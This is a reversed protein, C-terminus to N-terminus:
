GSRCFATTAPLLWPPLRPRSLRQAAARSRRPFCRRPTIDGARCRSSPSPTAPPSPMPYTTKEACDLSGSGTAISDCEPARSAPPSPIPATAGPWQRLEAVLGEKSGHSLIYRLRGTQAEVENSVVIAPYRRQLLPGRWGHLRGAEKSLNTNLYCCFAALQHADAPHLTRPLPVLPMRLRPGHRRLERRCPRPHRRLDRPVRGLAQAPLPGPPGPPSTSWRATPSSASAARWAEESPISRQSRASSPAGPFTGPPERDRAPPAAAAPSPAPRTDSSSPMSCDCLWRRSTAPSSRSRASASSLRLNHLPM